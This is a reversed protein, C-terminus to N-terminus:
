PTAAGTVTDKTCAVVLYTPVTEGLGVTLMWDSPPQPEAIREFTFGHNRITNLYTALSRHNSGVVNRLTSLQAASSWRGEDFYGRGPPWSASVAPASGPFCPHLISFVFLGGPELLRAVTRLTGDLDDIDSLGFNSVVGNFTRGALLLPDSADGTIYEVGLPVTEEEARAADLLSASIDVGAVRAGQRALERAVLGHGCALDLVSRDSFPAALQLLTAIPEQDYADPHAAVYEGAVTDYRAQGDSTM